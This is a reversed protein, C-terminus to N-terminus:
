SNASSPLTSGNALDAPIILKPIETTFQYDKEKDPFAEKITTCASLNFLVAAGCLSILSKHKM